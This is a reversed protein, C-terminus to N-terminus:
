PSFISHKTLKIKSDLGFSDQHAQYNSGHSTFDVGFTLILWGLPHLLDGDKRANHPSSWTISYPTLPPGLGHLAFAQAGYDSIAECIDLLECFRIDAIENSFVLM